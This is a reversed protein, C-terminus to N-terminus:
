KDHSSKGCNACRLTIWCHANAFGCYSCIWKSEGSIETAEWCIRYEKRM